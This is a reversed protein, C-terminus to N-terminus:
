VGSGPGSGGAPLLDDRLSPFEEGSGERFACPATENEPPSLSIELALFTSLVILDPIQDCGVISSCLEPVAAATAVLETGASLWLLSSTVFRMKRMAAAVSGRLGSHNM